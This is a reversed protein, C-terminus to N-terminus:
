RVKNTPRSSSYVKRSWLYSLSSIFYFLIIFFLLYSFTFYIYNIVNLKSPIFKFKKFFKDNIIFNSKSITPPEANSVEGLIVIVGWFIIDRAYSYKRILTFGSYIFLFCLGEEHTIINNRIVFFEPLLLHVIKYFWLNQLELIWAEILTNNEYLGFM